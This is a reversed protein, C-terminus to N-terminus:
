IPDLPTPATIANQKAQQEQKQVIERLGRQIMLAKVEAQTANRGLNLEAGFAVVIRADDQATTTITITAM